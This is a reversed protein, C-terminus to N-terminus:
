GYIENLLAALRVGAQLLRQRVLHLNQYSYSYGLKGDGYHYVAQRLAMSELAWDRVGSQQWSALQSADPVALSAGLETYSLRTEDIMDSDWVRHLNSDNRFWKVKVDNGGRDAGGGVHLPQHIDGVLHILMKVSELEEQRGLKKSKLASVIREITQIIDGNPNKESEDYTQNELITVWHWDSAYDYTSDARIEDMWTSAIALSQGLLIRNLEKKAKKNLYKEAVWGTARHGTPGWAISSFAIQLLIVTIIIKKM